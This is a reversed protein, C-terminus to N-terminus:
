VMNLFREVDFYITTDSIAMDKIELTGTIKATNSLGDFYLVQDDDLTQAASVVINGAGTNVSKNIVTPNVASADIGPGRVTSGWTIGDVSDLAITTSNSCAATLQASVQTLEINVNKLDVRMGNTIAAIQDTGYGFIRINSDSKLADAQQKSFIVNGAQATAFGNRDITTVDGTSQIAQYSAEVHKSDLIKNYYEGEILTQTNSVVSYNKITAPTTTNVGTGSRAPDLIMGAQLGAINTLPWRYYTSSSTDEGPIAIAASGFTVNKFVALDDTTPTRVVSFARGTPAVVKVTFNITTSGGSSVTLSAAGTTSDTSHPTMGNFPPTFTYTAGDSLSDAPLLSIEKVNDGDPNLERVLCHASAAVGTGTILDGVYINGSVNNDFVAKTASSTAGDLTDTSAAYKSPAICSVTLTRAVDQYLIKTSVNSMSGSSSNVNISSDANRVESYSSFKTEINFVTEAILNITYNKLSDANETFKIQGSYVSGEIKQNRISAKTTSWKREDFNYYNGSNDFVELSFFSGNDGTIQFTRTEGLHSVDTTKINFNHLYKKVYGSIAIQDADNMLRGDSNYHYGAPAKVGDKEKVFEVGDTLRSSVNNYGNAM